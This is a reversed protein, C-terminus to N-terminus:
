SGILRYTKEGVAHGFKEINSKWKFAIQVKVQGMAFFFNIKGVMKNGASARFLTILSLKSFYVPNDDPL